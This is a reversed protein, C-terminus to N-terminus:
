FLKGAKAFRNKNNIDKVLKINSFKYKELLSFIKEGLKENIEFYLKGNKSLHESAFGAIHEYFILPNEDSVFLAKEPEYDLVNKDMLKKESELVYPPNSVIIDFLINEFPNQSLKIDNQKFNVNVDNNDSNQKATKIAETSIDTAYFNANQINKALSIIICGSGTGIDLININEKSNEKIIIDVLEETEPRPILTNKNVSFKLGYFETQGIIYQLPEYKFLRETIEKLKGTLNEDIDNNRNTIQQIKDLFFVDECIIGFMSQLENEPYLHILNDKFLKELQVLKM